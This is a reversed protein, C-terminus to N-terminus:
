IPIGQGAIFCVDDELVGVCTPVAATLVCIWEIGAPAVLKSLIRTAQRAIIIGYTLIFYLGSCLILAELMLMEIELILRSDM